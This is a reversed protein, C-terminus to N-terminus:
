NSPLKDREKKKRGRAKRVTTSERDRAKRVGVYLKLPKKPKDNRTEVHKFQNLIEFSDPTVQGFITYKGDLRTSQIM